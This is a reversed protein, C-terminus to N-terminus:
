ANVPETVVPIRALAERVAGMGPFRDNPDKALMQMVIQALQKPMEPSDEQRDVAPPPSQLHQMIVARFEGTFPPRGLLMQYMVAGLSYVDSREDAPEGSYSYWVEQSV